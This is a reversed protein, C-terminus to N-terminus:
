LCILVTETGNGNVEADKGGIIRNFSRTSKSKNPIGCNCVKEKESETESSPMKPHILFSKRTGIDNIIYGHKSTNAFKENISKGFDYTKATYFTMIFLYSKLTFRAQQQM